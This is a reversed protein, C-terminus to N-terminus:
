GRHHARERSLHQAAHLVEVYPRDVGDRQVELATRRHVPPTGVLGRVLGLDEPHQELLPGPGVVDGCGPARRDAASSEPEWRAHWRALRPLKDVRRRTQRTGGGPEGLNETLCSTSM